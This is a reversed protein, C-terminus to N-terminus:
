SGSDRRRLAVLCFQTGEGTIREVDLAAADAVRRLESLDVASGLWAPHDSGKPARGVRALARHRLSGLGGRRRHISPDNSVQFGAWGGPRLVRGVDRIYDYTIAPDPLHQFVVHSFFVDVSADAVGTLSRGDCVLWEVDELGENLEGARRVMEGSVDLARVSSTRSALVRTLRGLGCGLEVVDDDARLEHGLLELVGDVVGPGTAWFQELDTDAYDLRNEVFYAANERARDDWFARMDVDPM